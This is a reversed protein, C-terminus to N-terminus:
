TQHKAAPVRQETIVAEADFDDGIQMVVVVYRFM